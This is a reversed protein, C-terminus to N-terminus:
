NNGLGGAENSGTKGRGTIAVLNAALNRPIAQLRPRFFVAGETTNKRPM